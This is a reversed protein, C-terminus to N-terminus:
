PGGLEDDRALLLPWWPAFGDSMDLAAPSAVARRPIAAIAGREAADDPIARLVMEIRDDFRAPAGAYDAFMTRNDAAFRAALPISRRGAGFQWLDIGCSRGLSALGIMGQLAFLSYHLPMTRKAEADQRGRPGIQRGLRLPARAIVTALLATDGAAAAVSGLLLDHFVGINNALAAAKGARTLLDDRFDAFWTATAASEAASLAGADAFIRIADALAWFDRFDVVGAMGGEGPKDPQIQASRLHPAMRTAPDVFWSRVFAAGHDAYRREGTLRWALALATTADIMTQLRFRDYNESGAGGRVAAPNTAGDTDKWSGDPQQQAYRRISVYDNRAIGQPLVPKETVSVPPIRLFADAAAVIAAARRSGPPTAAILAGYCILGGADLRAKGVIAADLRACHAAVGVFRSRWRARGDAEVADTTLPNLRAVWGGLAFQGRDEADDAYLQREWVAPFWKQWPGPVGLRRLLEAKCMHGYRLREDFRDRADSRFVIQPEDPTELPRFGPAILAENDRVRAMPVILYRAEPRAEALAAIEDFAGATLFCAGDWPMVWRAGAAFGDALAANRAGNVNIAYRNKHRYIWEYAYGAQSPGFDGAVLALPNFEPPLGDGDLMRRAYVRADVPIRLVPQGHAELMAIIEAEREADAIRNVVWRKECSPFAPEHALIFALNALTQREGHRPPLDNGLIRTLVFGGAM